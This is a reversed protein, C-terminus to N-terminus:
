QILLGIFASLEIIICLCSIYRGLPAWSSFCLIWRIQFNYRHCFKSRSELAVSARYWALGDPKGKKVASM